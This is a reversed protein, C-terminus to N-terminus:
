GRGVKLEKDYDMQIGMEKKVVWQALKRIYMIYMLLIWAYGMAVYKQPSQYFLHHNIFLLFGIVSVFATALGVIALEKVKQEMSM